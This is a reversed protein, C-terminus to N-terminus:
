HDEIIHLFIAAGGEFNDLIPPTYRVEWPMQWIYFQILGQLISM